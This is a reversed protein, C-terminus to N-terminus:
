VKDQYGELLNRTLIEFSEDDLETKVADKNEKLIDEINRFICWHLM